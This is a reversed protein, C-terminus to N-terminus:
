SAPGDTENKYANKVRSFIDRIADPMLEEFDFDGGTAMQMALKGMAKRAIEQVEDMLNPILEAPFLDKWSKMLEWMTLLDNAIEERADDDLSDFVSKKPGDDSRFFKSLGM